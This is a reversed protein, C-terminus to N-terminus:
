KAIADTDRAIGISELPLHCDDAGGASRGQCWTLGPRVQRTGAVMGWRESRTAVVLRMLSFDYLLQLTVGGELAGVANGGPHDLGDISPSSSSNEQRRNKGGGSRM